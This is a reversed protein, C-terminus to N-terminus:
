VLSVEQKTLIRKLENIRSEIEALRVPTFNDYGKFISKYLASNAMQRITLLVSLEKVLAPTTTYGYNYTVKLRDEGEAPVNDFYRIRGISLDNSNALYDNGLGESSSSWSPTDTTDNTNVQVSSLTIVPYNRLFFVKQAPECNLYEVSGTTQSYTRGTETEILADSNSILQTVVSDQLDAYDYDASLTLSASLTLATIKGDDLNSTYTTATGLAISNTYLTLSSSIVNDHDLDWTSTTGNGTGVIESRVKTYADKGLNRWVELSTCYSMKIGEPM